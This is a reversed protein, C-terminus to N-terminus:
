PQYEVCFSIEYSASDAVFWSWGVPVIFFAGRLVSAGGTNDTAINIWTGGVPRLYLNWTAAALFWIGLSVLIPADFPNAYEVNILREASVDVPAKQFYAGGVPLAAKTTFPSTAVDDRVGAIAEAETAYVINSADMVVWLSGNWVFTAGEAQYVQGPVPASPFNIAM